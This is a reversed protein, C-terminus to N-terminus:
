ELNRLSSLPPLTSKPARRQDPTASGDGNPGRITAIRIDLRSAKGIVMGKTRHLSQCIQNCTKGEAALRRLNDIEKESWAKGYNFDPETM